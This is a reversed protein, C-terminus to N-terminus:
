AATHQFLASISKSKTVLEAAELRSHTSVARVVDTEQALLTFSLRFEGPLKFDQRTQVFIGDSCTESPM